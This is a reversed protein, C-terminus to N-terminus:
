FFTCIPSEHPVSSPHSSGVYNVFGDGIHRQQHVHQMVEQPVVLQQILDVRRVPVPLAQTRALGHDGPQHMNQAFVVVKHAMHLVPYCLQWVQPRAQPPVRHTRQIHAIIPQRFDRAPQTQRFDPLRQFLLDGLAQHPHIRQRGLPHPQIRGGRFHVPSAIQRHQELPPVRFIM